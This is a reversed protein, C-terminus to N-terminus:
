VGSSLAQLIQVLPSFISLIILHIAVVNIVISLGLSLCAQFPRRTFLIAAIGLGSIAVLGGSILQWNEFIYLTMQPLKERSGLMDELVREFLPVAWLARVTYYLFICSILALLLRLGKVWERVESELSPSPTSM